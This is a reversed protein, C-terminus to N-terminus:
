LTALAVFIVSSLIVVANRLIGQQQQKRQHVRQEQLEQERLALSATLFTAELSNMEISHSKAWGEIEVLRAGPLAGTDQNVWDM